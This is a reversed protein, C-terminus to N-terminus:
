ESIGIRAFSAAVSNDMAKAAAIDAAGGARDGRNLKAVGRGYLAFADDRHSKVYAAFGAAARAFQKLRLAIVADCSDSLGPKLLFPRHRPVERCDALAGKLDGL